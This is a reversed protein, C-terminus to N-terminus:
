HLIASSMEWALLIERCQERSLFTLSKANKYNNEAIFKPDAMGTAIRIRYSDTGLAIIYRLGDILVGEGIISDMIHM